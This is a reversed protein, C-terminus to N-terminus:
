SATHAPTPGRASSVAVPAGKAQGIGSREELWRRTALVLVLINYPLDFYALSLFMGGVLYGVLSVQCM